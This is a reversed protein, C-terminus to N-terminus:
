LQPPPLPHAPARQGLGARAPVRRAEPRPGLAVPALPHEGPRLDEDREARPGPDREHECSGASLAGAAQRAKEDRRLRVSEARRADLALEPETCLVRGLQREVTYPHGVLIAQARLAVAEPDRHRRQVVASDREGRAADADRLTAEIGAEAIRALPLLEPLRDCRMLEHLLQEGFDGDL